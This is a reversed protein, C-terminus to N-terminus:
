SVRFEDHNGYVYHFPIDAFETTLLETIFERDAQTAVHDFIDGTHIVADVDQTVARQLVDRFAARADMDRAWKAKKSRKRRRYGIHTDGVILLRTTDNQPRGLDTATFDKTSSLKYGRTGNKTWSNGRVGELKYQHGETLSVSLNHTAWIDLPVTQGNADEVIAEYDVKKNSSTSFECVRVTIGGSIRDNEPIEDRTFM